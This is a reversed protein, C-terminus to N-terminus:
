ISSMASFFITSSSAPLLNHGGSPSAPVPITAVLLVRLRVPFTDAPVLTKAIITNAFLVQSVEHLVLNLLLVLRYNLQSPGNCYSYM